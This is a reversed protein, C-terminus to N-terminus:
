MRRASPRAMRSSLATGGGDAAAFACLHVYRELAWLAAGSVGGSLRVDKGIGAAQHVSAPSTAVRNLLEAAAPGGAAESAKVPADLADLAYSRVLKPFLRRLTAPHDFLDLGLPRGAIAFLVGAQRDRWAFARVYEEVSIAHQEYVAAMAQTPSSSKMRLAKEAIYQWVRGQDSRPSGMMRLSATVDSVRAARAEAYMVRPSAQFEASRMSWRGAEVCSVPIVITQQAPALITLNLVRNQKAGILEEGDILLVPQQARNEFCLEPVSGTHNLETVRAVGQAIADDLLLYEPEPVAPAPRLLPFLTLNRFHTPEAAELRAFEEHLSKM